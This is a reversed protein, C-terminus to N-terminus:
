WWCARKKHLGHSQVQLSDDVSIEIQIDVWDCRWGDLYIKELTMSWNGNVIDSDDFTYIVNNSRLWSHVDQMTQQDDFFSDAEGSWYQM